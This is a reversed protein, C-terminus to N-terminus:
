LRIGLLTVDDRLETDQKHGLFTDLLKQEQEQMPLHHWQEICETLKGSGLRKRAPDPQDIFGDSSLYFVDRAQLTVQHRTFIVGPSSGGVSCRDGKFKTFEGSRIVSLNNKAGAFSLEYNDGSRRLICIGLDMGHQRTADQSQFRDLFRQHLFHLISDPETMQQLQIAETLLSHGILTILAGPVGHGTCDAVIIVQFDGHESIWYFDGSVVDKPIFIICSEPFLSKLYLDDPLISNQIHRAYEISQQVRNHVNMLEEQQDALIQRAKELYDLQDKLQIENQRLLENKASIEEKQRRLIRHDKNKQLFFFAIVVIIFICLALISLSYKRLTAEKDLKQQKLKKDAELLEITQQQKQQELQQEKIRLKQLEQSRNLKDLANKQQESVLQQQVISLAQRASRSELRQKELALAQLEKEKSLLALQQQQLKLQNGQREKELEIKEKENWAIRIEEEHLEAMQELREQEEREEAEKKKILAELQILKQDYAEAKEWHEEKQYILKMLLYNDSLLQLDQQELAVQSAKAATELAKEQRGSLFYHSALYNYAEAEGPSNSQYQQQQLAQQYYQIAEKDNGLNSNALGLNLLLTVSANTSLNRSLDAAKEFAELAKKSEGTRQYLFGLTNFGTIRREYNKELGYINTLWLAHPLAAEYKQQSQLIKIILEHVRTLEPTDLLLQYNELSAYAYLEAQEYQRLHVFWQSMDLRLDALSLTNASDTVYIKELKEGYIIARRYTRIRDYIEAMLQYSQVKLLRNDSQELKAAAQVGYSLAEAFRTQQYASKAMILYGVGEEEPWRGVKATALAQQSLASVADYNKEDLMESAQQLQSNVRSREDQQANIMGISATTLLTLLFLRRCWGAVPGFVNPLIINRSTTM